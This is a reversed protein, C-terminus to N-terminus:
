SFAASRSREACLDLEFDSSKEFKVFTLIALFGLFKTFAGFGGYFGRFIRYFCLIPNIKGANNGTQCLKGFNDPLFMAFNGFVCIKPYFHQWFHGLFHTMKPMKKPNPM